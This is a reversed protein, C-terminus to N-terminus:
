QHCWSSTKYVVNFMQLWCWRCSRTGFPGKLRCHHCYLLQNLIRLEMCKFCTKTLWFRTSRRNNPWHLFMVIRHQGDTPMMSPCLPTAKCQGSPRILAWVMLCGAPERHASLGCGRAKHWLRVGLAANQSPTVCLLGCFRFMFSHILKTEVATPLTNIQGTFSWVHLSPCLSVSVSTVQIEEVWINHRKVQLSFGRRRSLIYFARLFRCVEDHWPQLQEPERSEVPASLCSWSSIWHLPQLVSWNTYVRYVLAFATHQTDSGTCPRLGSFVLSLSCRKWQLTLPDKENCPWQFM